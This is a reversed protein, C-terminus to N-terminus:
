FELGIEKIDIGLSDEWTLRLKGLSRNWTNDGAVLLGTEKIIELWIGRDM